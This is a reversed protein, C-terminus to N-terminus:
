PLVPPGVLVLKAFLVGLYTGVAALGWNFLGYRWRIDKNNLLERTSRDKLWILLLGQGATFGAIFGIIGFVYVM